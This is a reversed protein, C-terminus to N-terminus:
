MRNSWTKGTSGWCDSAAPVRRPQQPYTRPTLAPADIQWRWPRVRDIFLNALVAGLQRIEVDGTPSAQAVANERFAVGDNLVADGITAELLALRQDALSAGSVSQVAFSTSTWGSPAAILM